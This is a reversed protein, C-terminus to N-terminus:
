SAPSYKREPSAPGEGFLKILMAYDVDAGFADEIAQLYVEHGDTTLQVRNALRGALDAIFTKAADGDRSGVMWSDVLKTDACIATWTWVDGHDAAGQAVDKQKAGVFSWIEDCQHAQM